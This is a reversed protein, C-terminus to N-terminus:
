RRALAYKVAALTGAVTKAVSYKVVVRQRAAEGMRQLLDPANAMEVMCRALAPVDGFPFTLGTSRSEILHPAAGVRDSVIAPRGCAMAENIVLGWTEGFDSPLVLCDSAVYASAMESQNLFGAFTVALGQGAVFEQAQALMEGTGVVLAHLPRATQAAAMPMAALLDLIRKKPELKGAFCFCIADPAIGWRERLGERQPKLRAADAGFRANDVFYPADFLREEQVRYSRYFDRNARGIPLFAACRELLVRHFARVIWPRRRLANSEGRMVVPIGLWWAAFAVQLLAWQHWGTMVLVDPRLQRLLRIPAKVRAAFFGEMGGRGSLEEVQQWRYGELMPIDWEFSRGFGIGQQRTNPLQVFLVSFDLSAEEQLARFWPVQYQIPHSAVAVVRPRAAGATAIKM